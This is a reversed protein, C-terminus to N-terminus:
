SVKIGHYRLAQVCRKIIHKLMSEDLKLEGLDSRVMESVEDGSLRGWEQVEHVWTLVPYEYEDGHTPSLVVHLQEGGFSARSVTVREFTLDAREESVGAGELADEIKGQIAATLKRDPTMDYKRLLKEMGENLFERVDDPARHALCTEDLVLSREDGYRRGLGITVRDSEITFYPDWNNEIMRYGGPFTMKKDGPLLQCLHWSERIEEHYRKRIRLDFSHTVWSNREESWYVLERTRALSMAMTDTMRIELLELVEPPIHHPTHIMFRWCSGHSMGSENALREPQGFPSMYDTDKYGTRTRAEMIDKLTVYRLPCTWPDHYLELELAVDRYASVLDNATPPLALALQRFPSREVWPRIIKVDNSYEIDRFRNWILREGDM